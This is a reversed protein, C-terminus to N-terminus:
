TNWNFIRRSISGRNFAGHLESGSFMSSIHLEGPIDTLCEDLMGM